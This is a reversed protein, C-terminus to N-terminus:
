WGSRTTKEVQTHSSSDIELYNSNEENELFALKLRDIYVMAKKGNVELAFYKNKKEIM